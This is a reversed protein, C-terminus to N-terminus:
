RRVPKAAQALLENEKVGHEPLGAGTGNSEPRGPGERLIEPHGTAPDTASRTRSDKLCRHDLWVWRSAPGGATYVASTFHAAHASSQQTDAVM